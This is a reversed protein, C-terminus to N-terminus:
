REGESQVLQLSTLAAGLGHALGIAQSPQAVARAIANQCAAIVQRALDQEQPSLPDVMAKADKKAEAMAFVTDCLTALQRALRKAEGRGRPGLSARIKLGRGALGFHEVLAAPVRLQFRWGGTGGTLHHSNGGNGKRRKRARDRAAPAAADAPVNAPVDPPVSV